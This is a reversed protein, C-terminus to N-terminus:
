NCSTESHSTDHRDNITDIADSSCKTQKNTTKNELVHHTKSFLVVFTHTHRLM